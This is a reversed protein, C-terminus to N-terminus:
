FVFSYSFKRSIQYSFWWIRGLILFSKLFKSVEFQDIKLFSQSGFPDRPKKYFFLTIFWSGDSIKTRQDTENRIFSEQLFNGGDRTLHTKKQKLTGGDPWITLRGNLTTPPTRSMKKENPFNECKGVEKIELSCLYWVLFSYLKWTINWKKWLKRSFTSIKLTKFYDIKKWDGASQVM